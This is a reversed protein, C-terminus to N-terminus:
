YDKEIGCQSCVKRFVGTFVGGCNQCLGNNRYNERRKLYDDIFKLVINGKYQQYKSKFEDDNVWMSVALLRKGIDGMFKDEIEQCTYIMNKIRSNEANGNYYDVIAAGAIMLMRVDEYNQLESYPEGEAFMAWVTDNANAIRNKLDDNVGWLVLDAENDDTLCYNYLNRLDDACEYMNLNEVNNAQAIFQAIYMYVFARQSLNDFVFDDDTPLNSLEFMVEAFGQEGLILTDFLEQMHRDIYGEQSM